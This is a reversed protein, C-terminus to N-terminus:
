KPHWSHPFYDKLTVRLFDKWLFVLLHINTCTVKVDGLSMLITQTQLALCHQTKTFGPIENRGKTDNDSTM